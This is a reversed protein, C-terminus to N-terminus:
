EDYFIRNVTVKGISLGVGDTAGEHGAFIRFHCEEDIYDPVKCKFRYGKGDETFQWHQIDLTKDSKKASLRVTIDEAQGSVVEIDEALLEYDGGPVLQVPVEFSNYYEYMQPQINIKSASYVSRKNEAPFEQVLKVDKFVVSKGAAEGDRGSFLQVELKNPFRYDYPITFSWKLGGANIDEKGATNRAFATGIGPDMVTTEIVDANGETFEVGSITLTYLAGPKLNDALIYRNYPDDSSLLEAESEYAVTKTNTELDKNVSMPGMGFEFFKNEDLATPNLLMIVIDPKVTNIYEAVNIYNYGEKRPDLNERPDIVDVREFETSLFTQVPTGFSDKIFLVHQPNPADRNIHTALVYQGGAYLSYNGGDVFDKETLYGIWVNAAEFDGTRYLQKTPVIMAMDTSFSPKLYILDDTGAYYQGVRKGITGLMINEMVTKDWKQIDSDSIDLGNDSLANLREMIKQFAMFSGNTNWHHDTRYFYKEVDEVSDSVYQSMDLVNVGRAMANRVMEQGNELDYNETGTPLLTKEMDMKAPAQVYLFKIDQEALYDSFEALKDAKKDIDNFRESPRILMGDNLKIVDNVFRRETVKSVFGNLEIYSNKLLLADSTFATQINSTMESFKEASDFIKIFDPLWARYSFIFSLVIFLGAIITTLLETKKVGATTKPKRSHKGRM